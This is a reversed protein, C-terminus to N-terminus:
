IIKLSTANLDNSVDGNHLSTMMEGNVRVLNFVLMLRYGSCVTSLCHECDAYFDTYFCKDASEKAFSYKQQMGNHEVLLEGGEHGAPLQILLTGFMGAEKESDSHREFHGGEEYLLMKCLHAEVRAQRSNSSCTSGADDTATAIGLDQMVQDVLKGLSEKMWREDVHFHDPDIQWAQRVQTDHILDTADSGSSRSYTAPQAIQQIIDVAQQQHLPYHLNGISHQHFRIIPTGISSCIEGGTAFALATTPRDLDSRLADYLVQHYSPPSTPHDMDHTLLSAEKASETNSNSNNATMTSDDIASASAIDADRATATLHMEMRLRTRGGGHRHYRHRVRGGPKIGNPSKKVYNALSRAGSDTDMDAAHHPYPDRARRVGMRMDILNFLNSRGNSQSSALTSAPHHMYGLAIPCLMIYCLGLWMMMM